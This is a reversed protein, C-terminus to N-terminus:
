GVKIDGRVRNLTEVIAARAMEKWENQESKYLKGWCVPAEGAEWIAKAVHTVIDNAKIPVDHGNTPLSLFRKIVKEVDTIVYNMNESM